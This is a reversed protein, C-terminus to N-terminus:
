LEALLEAALGDLRAVRAVQQSYFVVRKIEMAELPKHGVTGLEELSPSGLVCRHQQPFRKREPAPRSQRVDGLFSHQTLCGGPEVLEPEHRELASDLSIKRASTVGLEHALELRERGLVREALSRTRQLHQSEVATATLGVCEGSVSYSTCRKDILESDLWSCLELLELARDKLV